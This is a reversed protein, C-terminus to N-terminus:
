AEGAEEAKSFPVEIGSCTYDGFARTSVNKEFMEDLEAFTRNKTEPVEFWVLFFAGVCLFAFIFGTKGGLNGADTNFIYPVVFQFLWSFIFQSFFGVSQSAARLHVSSSEAAIVPAVSGICLAYDAYIIILQIGLFRSSTRNAAAFRSNSDQPTRVSTSAQFGPLM